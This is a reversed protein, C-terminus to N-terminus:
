KDKMLLSSLLALFGLAAVAMFGYAINKLYHAQRNFGMEENEQWEPLPGKAFMEDWADWVAAPSIDALPQNAKQVTQDIDSITVLSDAYFWIAFGAIAALVLVVLGGSFLWQKSGIHRVTTASAASDVTIGSIDSLELKKIGGMTPINITAQCEPCPIESGAQKLEIEIKTDCSGCPLLYLQAM